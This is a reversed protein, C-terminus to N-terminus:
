MPYRVALGASAEITKPDLVRSVSGRVGTPDARQVHL